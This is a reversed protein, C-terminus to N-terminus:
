SLIWRCWFSPQGKPPKSPYVICPDSMDEYYDDPVDVFYAREEGIPLKVADLIPKPRNVLLEVDRKMRRSNSFKELYAKHEPRLPKDLEFFDGSFETCYGM